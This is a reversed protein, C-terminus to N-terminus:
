LGADRLLRTLVAEAAFQGEAVARAAGCHLEYHSEITDIAAAAEDLTRFAFLGAGTPYHARFGTDQVVVPRGLALYAASRSSFWGSHSAVYANKAISWEARSSRLYDRYAGLTCSREYADVVQWGHRQLQDRPAAGSLAVELPVRVHRPLEIFKMFEVDKGGYTTGSLNPLTVDTKWSMVTTYTQAAPDFACPWDDLVIPQRTPIWRLGCHPIACGPDNISEAFTFFRDHARILRVSYAQDETATGQEVALLKAQSYCPDSDLYATRRAGRYEERLWCAGSVNLFLDAKSCVREVERLASGHYTGDPARLAWRERMEEGARALTAELYAANFSVEDTFSGIRPDYLWQGTDELYFVEHGLRRFGSVYALYDWGVGGLPYTAILGTVVIRM